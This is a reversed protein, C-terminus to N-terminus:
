PWSKHDIDIWKNQKDISYMAITRCTLYKEVIVYNMIM